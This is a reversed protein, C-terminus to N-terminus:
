SCTKLSQGSWCQHAWCAQLLAERHSAVEAVLSRQAHTAGAAPKAQERRM